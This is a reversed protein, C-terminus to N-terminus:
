ELQNLLNEIDKGKEKFEKRSWCILQSRYDNMMKQWRTIREGGCRRGWYSEVIERCRDEKSGFAEFQGYKTGRWTFSPENFNLDMMEASNMFEELFRPRHLVSRIGM